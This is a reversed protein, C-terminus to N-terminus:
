AKRARFTVSRVVGELDAPRFGEASHLKDALAAPLDRLRPLFDTDALIEVGTLGAERVARFYRERPLAGALCGAYALLDGVLVEPLSGDLIIDSIVLRGGPRLVRAIEAFVAAKDPVLNIVCNSTVADVSESEVPLSELRGSRFEVQDFGAAAANARARDLMELTMDVGIVRGAAGVWRAALLADIGAGSGLDLVTEGPRLDLFAIPAGCGLDLNAGDPLRDLDDRDYGLAVAAEKSHRDSGCCGSGPGPRAAIKAYNERVADVIREDAPRRPEGRRNKM